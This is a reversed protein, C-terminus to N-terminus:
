EPDTVMLSLKPECVTAILRLTFVVAVRMSLMPVTVQMKWAPTWLQLGVVTVNEDLSGLLGLKGNVTVGEAAQTVTVHVLVVVGALQRTFSSGEPRALPRLAVVNLTVAVPAALVDYEKGTTTSTLPLEDLPPPLRVREVEVIENAATAFPAAGALWVRVTVAVEEVLKLTAIGLGFVHVHSVTEGEPFWIVLALRVIEAM